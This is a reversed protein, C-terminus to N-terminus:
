ILVQVGHGVFNSFNWFYAFHIQEARIVTIITDLILTGVASPYQQTSCVTSLNNNNSGELDM